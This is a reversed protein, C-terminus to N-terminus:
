PPAPNVPVEHFMQFLEVGSLGQADTFYQGLPVKVIVQDVRDKIFWFEVFGYNGQIEERPFQAVAQLVASMWDGFEDEAGLDEVPLRVYFDTEMVSFTSRGDQYICDEGFLSANASAQPNLKGVAQNIEETLQPAERYAWVFACGEFTPADTQEAPSAPEFTNTEPPTPPVFEDDPAMWKQVAIAGAAATLILAITM